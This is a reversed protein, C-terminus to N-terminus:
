SISKGRFNLDPNLLIHDISQKAEIVADDKLPTLTRMTPQPLIPVDSRARYVSVCWTSWERRTEILYGRYECREM